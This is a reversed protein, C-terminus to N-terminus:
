YSATFTNPKLISNTREIDGSVMTRFTKRNRGVTWDNGRQVLPWEVVLRIERLNQALNYARALENTSLSGVAEQPLNFFPVVEMRLLYRFAFDDMRPSSESANGTLSRVHATVLNTVPRNSNDFVVKQTSLLGIIQEASLRDNKVHYTRFPPFAAHRRVFIQEVHNTLDDLGRSGSRIAELLFLGDQNIITEDKNETPVTLGTPLVGIIAVLAFGVIAICLAIEIMTFAAAARGRRFGTSRLRQNLHSNM